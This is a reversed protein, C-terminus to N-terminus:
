VVACLSRNALSYHLADCAFSQQRSAYGPPAACYCSQCAPLCCSLALDSSLATMPSCSVEPQSSPGAASAESASPHSGQSSSGGQQQQSTTAAMLADFQPSKTLIIEMKAKQMPRDRGDGETTDLGTAIEAGPM